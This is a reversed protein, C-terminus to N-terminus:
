GIEQRQLIRCDWGFSQWRRPTVQEVGKGHEVTALRITRYENYLVGDQRHYSIKVADETSAPYCHDYRLMDVPFEGSGIVEFETRYLKM